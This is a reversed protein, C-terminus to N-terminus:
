HARDSTACIKGDVNALMIEKGDVEVDKMKGLPIESTEAVKIFSL